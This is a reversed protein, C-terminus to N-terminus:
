KQIGGLASRGVAGFATFVSKSKTLSAMFVKLAKDGLYLAAIIVGIKATGGFVGLADTVNNIATLFATLLEIGTKIAESNMIGM